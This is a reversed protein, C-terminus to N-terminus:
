SRPARCPGLEDRGDADRALVLAIELLGVKLGECVLEDEDVVAAGPEPLSLEAAEVLPEDESEDAAGAVPGATLELAM